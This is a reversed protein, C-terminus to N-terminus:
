ENIDEETVEVVVVTINDNGGKAKAAEILEECINTMTEKKCMIATMDDLGVEGHLGDTCILIRDGVAVHAVYFDADIQHDAGVAKTIMNRNEHHAAEDETILGAKVLSNVYTHDETIQNLTGDRLIYARSDGVNLIYLVDNRLYATVVTTAMGWNYEHRQSLELVKFNVDRICNRFYDQVEDDTQLQHLNNEEVFNAIEDVCTRSALEGSNNGGVGDAVIFVKDRKLVYCADENNSRRLGKDTKFGVEM